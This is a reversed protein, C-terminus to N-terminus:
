GDDPKRDDDQDQADEGEEDEFGEVPPAEEPKLRRGAESWADFYGMPRYKEDPEALRQTLRHIVMGALLLVSLLLIGAVFFAMRAFYDKREPTATRHADGLWYLLGAMAAIIAVMGIVAIAFATARRAQDAPKVM